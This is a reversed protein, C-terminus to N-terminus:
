IGIINNFMLETFFVYLYKNITIKIRPRAEIPFTGWKLHYHLETWDGTVFKILDESERPPLIQKVLLPFKFSIFFLADM